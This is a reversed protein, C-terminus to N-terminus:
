HGDTEDGDEEHHGEGGTQAKLAAYETATMTPLQSVFATVAWLDEDSHTPGLAPMGSMKIGHRLIWFVENAEWHSSAETLMPPKPYLGEAWETRDIGPGAHCSVCMEDYDAFGNSVQEPTFAAPADIAKAQREVSKEMTTDFAWSVLAPHPDTAAVDYAGALVVGLGGIVLVLLATAAGILYKM